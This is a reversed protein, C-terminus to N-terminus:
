GGSSTSTTEALAWTDSPKGMYALMQEADPGLLGLVQSRLKDIWIPTPVLM